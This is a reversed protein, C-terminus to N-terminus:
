GVLEKSRASDSHTRLGASYVLSGPEVGGDIFDSATRRALRGWWQEFGGIGCWEVTRLMTADITPEQGRHGWFDSLEFESREEIKLAEAFSMGGVHRKRGNLTVTSTWSGESCGRLM